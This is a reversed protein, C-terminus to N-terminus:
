KESNIHIDEYKEPHASDGTFNTHTFERVSEVEISHTFYDPCVRGWKISCNNLSVNEAFRISYAPNGHDEIDPYATTPRNDFIGGAYKTWRDMTLNINELKINKITSEKTGHICFSNEARGKVNKVLIDKITGPKTNASLPIATISLSEGKGPWPHAHYRSVFNIDIVDVKTINGEGRVQIDIGRGASQIECRKIKIEYLDLDSDALLKVGSSQTTIFCDKVNIKYWNKNIEPKTSAVISVADGGTIINCYRVEIERNNDLLIGKIGIVAIPNQIKINNIMVGENGHAYIAINPADAITIDTLEVGRSNIISIIHLANKEIRWCEENKNYDGTYKWVQGNIKGTGSIKLCLAENIMICTPYFDGEPYHKPNASAIIESNETLHFDISGKLQITGILYKKGGRLLVRNGFGNAAAVDIAHQIADTDLTKGDGVAGYDHVDFDMPKYQGTQAEIGLAFFLIAMISFTIQKM